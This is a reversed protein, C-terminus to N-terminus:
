GGPETVLQGQELDFVRGTQALDRFAEPQGVASFFCQTELAAVAEVARELHRRDLESPLDDLLVVPGGGSDERFLRAQSLCLALAALKEQGRSLRKAAVRGEVTLRLDARHPGVSTHGALADREASTRLADELSRDPAWGQKYSVALSGLEPALETIASSVAPVLRAVYRTRMASLAAGAGALDSVWSAALRADGRRLAANRQRLSKRYRRWAELFGPEVHFVGWDLYRRRGEPGGEVLEHSHPEFVVVPLVRALDGATRVPQGSLRIASEVASRRMGLRHEGSANRVTATLQFESTEERLLQQLRAPRFPRGRGLVHIAELLSTKGAGNEGLVLNFGGVPELELEALNRFNRVGLRTLRVPARAGEGATPSPVNSVSKPSDVPM